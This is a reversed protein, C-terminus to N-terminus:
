SPCCSPVFCALGTPQQDECSLYASGGGCACDFEAPVKPWGSFDYDEDAYTNLLTVEPACKDIDCWLLWAYLGYVDVDVHCAAPTDTVPADTIDFDDLVFSGRGTFVRWVFRCKGEAPDAQGPIPFAYLGGPEQTETPTQSAVLWYLDVRQITSNLPQGPVGQYCLLGFDDRAFGYVANGSLDSIISSGGPGALPCWTIELTCLTPCETAPEECLIIQGNCAYINPM